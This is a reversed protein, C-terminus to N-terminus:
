SREAWVLIPKPLVSTLIPRRLAARRVARSEMAWPGKEGLAQQQRGSIARFLLPGGPCAPATSRERLLTSPRTTAQHAGGDKPYIPRDLIPIVENQDYLNIVSQANDSAGPPASPSQTTPLHTAAPSLTELISAMLSLVGSASPQPLLRANWVPSQSPGPGMTSRWPHSGAPRPDVPTTRAANWRTSHRRAAIRHPCECHGELGRPPAAWCVHLARIVEGPTKRGIRVLTRGLGPNTQASREHSNAPTPCGQPGGQEGHGLARERGPCTAAALFHCPFSVTCGSVGACHLM